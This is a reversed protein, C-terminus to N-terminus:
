GRGTLMLVGGHYFSRIEQCVDLGDKGPLMIDLIVLDPKFSRVLDAALDGRAVAQCEYGEAELLLTTLRLIESDDEVIAIKAPTNHQM